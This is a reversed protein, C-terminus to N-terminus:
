TLKLNLGQRKAEKLWRLERRRMQQRQLLTNDDAGSLHDCGHALYLALEHDIGKYAPGLRRAIQINIVIEGDQRDAPEGPIATFNFSIVDTAYDHGLHARNVERSKRDNVIVVSVEGWNIGSRKGSKLLLFEALKHIAPPHLTQSKALNIVKVNM